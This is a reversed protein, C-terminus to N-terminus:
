MSVKASCKFDREADWPSLRRSSFIEIQVREATFLRKCKLCSIEAKGRKFQVYRDDAIQSCYPCLLSDGNQEMTGNGRCMPCVCKQTKDPINLPKEKAGPVVGGDIYLQGRRRQESWMEFPPGSRDTYPFAMDFVELKKYGEIKPDFLIKDMTKRTLTQFARMDFLVEEIECLHWVVIDDNQDETEAVARFLSGVGMAKLAEEYEEMEVKAPIDWVGGDTPADLYAYEGRIELILFTQTICQTYM